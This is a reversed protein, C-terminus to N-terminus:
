FWQKKYFYTRHNIVASLLLRLDKQFSIPEHIFTFFLGLKLDPDGNKLKALRLLHGLTWSSRLGEIDTWHTYYFCRGWASAMLIWRFHNLDFVCHQVLLRSVYSRNRDNSGWRQIWHCLGTPDFLAQLTHPFLTACCLAVLSLNSSWSGNFKM